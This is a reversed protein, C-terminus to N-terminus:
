AIRSFTHSSGFQGYNAGPMLGEVRAIHVAEDGQRTLVDLDTAWTARRSPSLHEPLPDAPSADAEFRALHEMALLRHDDFLVGL